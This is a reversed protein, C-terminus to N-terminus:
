TLGNRMEKEEDKETTWNYTSAPTPAYMKQKCPTENRKNIYLLKQFNGISKAVRVWKVEQLFIFM